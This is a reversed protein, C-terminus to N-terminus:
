DEPNIVVQIMSDVPSRTVYGKEVLRDVSFKASTHSAYGMYNAIQRYSPSQGLSETLEIIANLNEKQVVTLPLGM